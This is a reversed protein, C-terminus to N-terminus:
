ANLATFPWTTQGKVVQIHFHPATAAPNVYAITALAGDTPVTPTEYLVTFGTAGLTRLLLTRLEYVEDPELDRVSLDLALGVTHPDAPGHAERGCTVTLVCGFEQAADHIAALIHAQAATPPDLRVTSRFAVYGPTM